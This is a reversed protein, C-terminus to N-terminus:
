GLARPEPTPTPLSLLGAGPDAGTGQGRPCETLGQALEAGDMCM